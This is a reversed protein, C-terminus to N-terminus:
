LWISPPTSTDSEVHQIAQLEPLQLALFCVNLNLHGYVKPRTTYVEVPLVERLAKIARGLGRMVAAELERNSTRQPQKGPISYDCDTLTHPLAEGELCLDNESEAHLLAVLASCM